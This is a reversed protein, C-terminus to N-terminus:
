PHDEPNETAMTEMHNYLCELRDLAIGTHTHLEPLAAVIPCDSTYYDLPDFGQNLDPYRAKEAHPATLLALYFLAISCEGYKFTLQITNNLFNEECILSAYRKIKLHPEKKTLYEITTSVQHRITNMQMENFGNEEFKKQGKELNDLNLKLNEIIGAILEKSQDYGAAKEFIKDVNISIQEKSGAIKEIDIGADLLLRKTESTLSTETHVSIANNLFEHISKKFIKPTKHNIERMENEKIIKLTIALAKSAKEVAQQLTFIAQPYHGTNYLDISTHYDDKAVSLFRASM